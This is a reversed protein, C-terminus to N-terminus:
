RQVGIANVARRIGVHYTAVAISKGLLEAAIERIVGGAKRQRDRDAIAGGLGVVDSILERQTLSLQLVLAADVLDANVDLIGHNAELLGADAVRGSDLGADELLFSQVGFLLLVVKAGRSDEEDNLGLAVQRGRLTGLDLCQRVVSM